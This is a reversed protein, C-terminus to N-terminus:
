GPVVNNRDAAATFIYPSIDGTGALKAVVALVVPSWGFPTDFQDSHGVRGTIRSVQDQIALGNQGVLHLKQSQAHSASSSQFFIRPCFWSEGSVVCGAPEEDM